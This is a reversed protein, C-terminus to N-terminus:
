SSSSRIAQSASGSKDHKLRPLSAPICLLYQQLRDELSARQEPTIDRPQFALAAKTSKMSFEKQDVCHYLRLPHAQSARVIDDLIDDITTMDPLRKVGKSLTANFVVDRHLVFDALPFNPITSECLRATTAAAGAEHELPLDRWTTALDAFKQVPGCPPLKLHLKRPAAAFTSQDTQDARYPMRRVQFSGGQGLAVTCAVEWAKPDELGMRYIDYYLKEGLKERVYDSVFGVNTCRAAFPYSSNYRFLTSSWVDAKNDLPRMTNHACAAIFIHSRPPQDLKGAIESVTSEFVAPKVIARLNGGVIGFREEVVAEDLEGLADAKLVRKMEDLTFMPVYFPRYVSEKLYVKIKDEDPSTAVITRAEVLPFDRHEHPDLLYFAHPNWLVPPKSKIGSDPDYGSVYVTYEELGAVGPGSGQWLQWTAADVKEGTHRAEAEMRSPIFAYLFGQKAYDLVVVKGAVLLRRLAHLLGFSKGTGENGVVVARHLPPNTLPPQSVGPPATCPPPLGEIGLQRLAEDYLDRVCARTVLTRDSLSANRPVLWHPGSDIVLKQLGFGDILDEPEALQLQRALQTTEKHITWKLKDTLYSYKKWSPLLPASGSAGQSMTSGSSAHAAVVAEGVAPAPSGGSEIRATKAGRREAESEEGANHESDAATHPASDKAEECRAVGTAM